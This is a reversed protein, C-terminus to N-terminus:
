PRRSGALAQPSACQRTSLRTSAVPVHAPAAAAAPVRRRPNCLVLPPPPQPVQLAIIVTKDNPVAIKAATVEVPPSYGAFHDYSYNGLPPSTFVTKLVASTAMDLLVVSVVPAKKTQM